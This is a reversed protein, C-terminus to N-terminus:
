LFCNVRTSDCALATLRGSLPSFLAMYFSDAVVAVVVFGYFILPPLLFISSFSQFKLFDYIKSNLTGDIACLSRQVFLLLQLVIYFILSPSSYSLDVRPPPTASSPAAHHQYYHSIKKGPDKDKM